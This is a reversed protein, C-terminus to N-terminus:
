QCKKAWRKGYVPSSSVPLRYVAYDPHSHMASSDGPKYTVELLRIGMTDNLTQLSEPSSKICGPWCRSWRSATDTKTSDTATATSDTTTTSEEKQDSQNCAIFVLSIGLVLIFQTNIKRNM